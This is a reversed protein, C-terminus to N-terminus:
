KKSIISKIKEIKESDAIASKLANIKDNTGPESDEDEESEDEVDEDPDQKKLKDLASKLDKDPKAKEPSIGKKLDDVDANIVDDISDENIFYLSENLFVKRLVSIKREEDIGLTTLYSYIQEATRGESALKSVIPWLSGAGYYSYQGHLNENLYDSYSKIISM